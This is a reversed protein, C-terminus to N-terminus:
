NYLYSNSWIKRVDAAFQSPTSYHGEKFNNEVASLDIPEKVIDFYDLCKQQVPDVPQM